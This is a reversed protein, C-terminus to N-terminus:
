SWPSFRRALEKLEEMERRSLLVFANEEPKGLVAEMEEDNRYVMKRFPDEFDKKRSRFVELANQECLIIFREILYAWHNEGLTAVGALKQLVQLAVIAKVRPYMEWWKEYEAHIEAWSRVRGEQVNNILGLVLAESVIQGGMNVFPGRIALSHMPHATMWQLSEEQFAAPSLEHSALHGLISRVAGFVLMEKYARYGEATKLVLTPKGSREVHPAHVELGGVQEPHTELLLRGQEKVADENSALTPTVLSAAVAAKGVWLNLLDMAQLMEQMTDPALYDAEIRQTIFTRKDRNRFKWGNRELAYRNYMWWYAPMITVREMDEAYSIMSFPIPIDLEHPYDGKTILTYSAFKSNFKISSSLAPWFGRRAQMEGDNGRTNHNSGITAGAAMNSQGQVLSAILFSNNHHQEHFPFVLANLVECCSITSNDGLLSNLLRAGYKLNSNNGMIFRVAKVGYFVRCGYGIIGNVLEVGEGIQSPSDEHSLITLNKLKNAGKVYSHPGFHVDKIVRCSKIVSCTGVEGYWGRHPDVEKQTFAILKQLFRPYERYTGWLWADACTMGEFPRVSRSEAENMINLWIRVSEDEGEKLIGNGFKAHNTTDMEDIESLICQEGIIYHSLYAVRHIASHRGIDCSIIHSDRIGEPLAFDHYSVVYPEMSGIRVLGYFSNDRILELDIPDEVLVDNWDSCINGQVELQRRETLALPRWDAKWGAIQADRYGYEDKGDQLFEAPVFGYGYEKIPTRKM